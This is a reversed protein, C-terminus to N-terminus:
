MLRSTAHSSTTRADVSGISSARMHPICSSPSPVAGNVSFFAGAAAPFRYFALRVGPPVGSHRREHVRRAIRLAHEFARREFRRIPFLRDALQLFLPQVDDLDVLLGLLLFAPLDPHAVDHDERALERRHDVRTKREYLGHTDQGLLALVGVQTVDGLLDHEIDFRSVGDGVREPLMRRREALQVDVHDGGALRASNEVRDQHAERDEHFLVVREDLTFPAM